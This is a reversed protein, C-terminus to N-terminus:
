IDKTSGEIITFVEDVDFIDDGLQSDALAELYHVVPENATGRALTAASTLFGWLKMRDDRSLTISEDHSGESTSETHTEELESPDSSPLPDVKSIYTNGGSLTKSISQPKLPSAQVSAPPSPDDESSYNEDAEYDGDESLGDDPLLRTFSEPIFYTMFEDDNRMDDIYRCIFPSGDLFKSVSTLYNTHVTSFPSSDGTNEPGNNREGQTIDISDDEGLPDNDTTIQDADCAPQTIDTHIQIIAERVDPDMMNSKSLENKQRINPFDEGLVTHCSANDVLLLIHRSPDKEVISEQFRVLWDHFTSRNMYDPRTKTKKQVYKNSGDKIEDKGENKGESKGEDKGEGRSEDNCEDKGESKGKGRLDKKGRGLKKTEWPQVEVLGQIEKDKRFGDPLHEGELSYEALINKIYEIKPGIKELDVSGAEGRLLRYKFGWTKKFSAVWRSAFTPRKFKLAGAQTEWTSYVDSALVQLLSQSVPLHRDRLDKVISVLIKEVPYFPRINHRINRRVKAATEPVKDFNERNRLLRSIYKKPLNHQSEYERM